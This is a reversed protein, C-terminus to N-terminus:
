WEVKALRRRRAVAVEDLLAQELSGDHLFNRADRAVERLTPQSGKGLIASGNRLEWEWTLSTQMRFFQVRLRGRHPIESGPVYKVIPFFLSDDVRWTHFGDKAEARAAMDLAEKPDLIRYRTKPKARRGVVRKILRM